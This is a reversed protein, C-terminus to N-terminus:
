MIADKGVFPTGFPDNLTDNSDFLLSLESCNMNEEAKVLKYM